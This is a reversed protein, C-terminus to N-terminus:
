KGKSVTAFGCAYGSFLVYCIPIRLVGSLRAIFLCVRVRVLPVGLGNFGVGLGWFELCCLVLLIFGVSLVWEVGGTSEMWCIDGSMRRCGRAGLM